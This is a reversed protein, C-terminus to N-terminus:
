HAPYLARIGDKDHPELSRKSLTGCPLFPWMTDAERDSHHLAVLHGFEHAATTHIDIYKVRCSPSSTQGYWHKWDHDPSSNFIIEADVIRGSANGVVNAVAMKDSNPWWLDSWKVVAFPDSTAQNWSFWLQREVDNWEYRGSSVYSRIASGTPFSSDFQWTIWNSYGGYSNNTWKIYVNDSAVAVSSSLSGALVLAVVRVALGAKRVRRM